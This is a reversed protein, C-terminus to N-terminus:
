ATNRPTLQVLQGRRSNASVSSRRSNQKLREATQRALAVADSGAPKTGSSISTPGATSTSSGRAWTPAPCKSEEQAAIWALAKELPYLYAKGPKWYPLGKARLTRVTATTIGGVEEALQSATVFRSSV